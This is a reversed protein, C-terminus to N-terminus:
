CLKLAIYRKGGQVLRAIESRDSRNKCIKWLKRLNGAEIRGEVSIVARSSIIIGNRLVQMGFAHASVAKVAEGIFVDGGAQRVGRRLSRRPADNDSM